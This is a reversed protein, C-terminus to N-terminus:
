RHVGAASLVIPARSSPPSSLILAEVDPSEPFMFLPVNTRYTAPDALSFGLTDPSGGRHLHNRFQREALAAAHEHALFECYLTLLADRVDRAFNRADTSAKLRKPDIALTPFKLIKPSTTM